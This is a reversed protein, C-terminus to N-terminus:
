DDLTVKVSSGHPLAQVLRLRALGPHEDLLKAGNALSRLAATEARAAELQAKGRQRASVLEAYASRLDPPLLVDKLVAEVVEIGLPQGVAAAASTVAGGVERRGSTLVTDVDLGALAERLGIQAALYLSNEPDASVEHFPVPDVVRWVLSATVRVTVGESTLVEQPALTVLRERMDVPVAQSRRQLAHRGPVLVREFRGDRYVLVREHQNVIIKRTFMVAVEKTTARTM